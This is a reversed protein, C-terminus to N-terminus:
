AESVSSTQWTLPFDEQPLIISAPDVDDTVYQRWLSSKVAEATFRVEAPVFHLGLGRRPRNTTKNKGSGHWTRGDHISIGGAQLGQLTVFDLKNACEEEGYHEDLVGAQLAASHLLKMGGNSQFFQKASGVHQKTQWLHSGRVYELPGVDDTMDDLAVWVTVVDNPAFMFYPSDRHFALPKAGPPKAWIQDQALRTGQKWGALQAVIQGLTPHCALRRFLANSKHVNIVQIVKGSQKTLISENSGSKIRPIKDPAQDRDYYGGLVRELEENLDNVDQVSLANPFVVFGNKQFSNIVHQPLSTQHPESHDLPVSVCFSPTFNEMTM